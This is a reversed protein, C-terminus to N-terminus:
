EKLKMNLVLEKKGRKVKVRVTDGPDRSGVKEQLENVSRVNQENIGVIVDGKKIGADKAAGGDILESVFVGQSVFLGEQKAFDSDVDMIMVGLYARHVEGYEMLDGVVKKVLNIPVAFSYGAYTGTPTAIATNIGVLEGKANVLAGGSNGPNVAADTQIFSEISAKRNGLININRGKASVIGATVTFNLDFPNGVALVWEGIKTEDSNSLEVSPLNSAKIKLVALDTSPDTGVLEAKYKRKDYLTVEIETAGEIVHNNTVIYGQKGIIVGSGTSQNDRPQGFLEMYVEERRSRPKFRSISTVNVVAPMVKEAAASFDIPARAGGMNHALQGLEEQAKPLQEKPGEKPLQAVTETKIEVAQVSSRAPLLYSAGLVLLGGALGSFLHSLNPKM